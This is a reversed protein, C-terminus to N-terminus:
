PKCHVKYLFYDVPMSHHTRTYKYFLIHDQGWPNGLEKIIKEPESEVDVMFYQRLEPFTMQAWASFDYPTNMHLSRMGGYNIPTCDINEIVAPPYAGFEDFLSRHFIYTGWVINGGGFVEHGVAMKLPKFAPRNQIKGDRFIHISGFNFLKYEPYKQILGHCVELYDPVYEDDSDLLTIWQGKANQFATNYGIVREENPKHIVRVMPFDKPNFVNEWLFDVTSGDDVIVWEFDRFTQNKVSEICRLFGQVREDNWLHVSTVITFFPQM